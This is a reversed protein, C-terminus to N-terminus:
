EPRAEGSNTMMALRQLVSSATGNDIATECRIRAAKLDPELGVLWIGAAANAVVIDRAPNHAGSLVLRIIDASETASNVLLDDIKIPDFGFSAPSWSLHEIGGPEILLVHTDASLTVEDLGDEGRVVIARYVQLQHLANAIKLAFAEKGVGLVQFPAGAPNCLPGLFNFLTPSQISRRVAAVHKMAPHLLPAYCFCIGLDDICKEVVERPADIRIGLEALVDASGTLSTVRRNGHKAVAAGAAAAVLAAATSINFTKSGDGGTGCTDLLNTRRTRIPTMASRLAEAAGVIEDISEGKAHLAVLLDRIAQEDIEGALMATMIDNMRQRSLSQGATVQVIANDIMTTSENM